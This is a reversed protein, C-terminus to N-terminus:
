EKTKRIDCKGTHIYKNFEKQQAGQDKLFHYSLLRRKANNRTLSKGLSRDGLWTALYVKM